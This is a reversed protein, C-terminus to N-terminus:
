IQEVSLGSSIVQSGVVMQGYCIPVANGQRSTNVAGNFLFSPRNEPREREDVSTAQPAFLMTSVGSLILSAGIGMAISSLGISSSFTGATLTASAYPFALSLGVLAAGAIIQGFGDSGSIVPIIRISEKESVPNIIDGESLEEKGGLLIRYYKDDTVYQKFGKLTSCLARVAEAPSRVEYRHVRGFKQGLQGYLLVTKM